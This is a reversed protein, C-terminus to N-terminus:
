LIDKMILVSTSAWVRFPQRVKYISVKLCEQGKTMRNTAISLCLVHFNCYLKIRKKKHCHCSKGNIFIVLFNSWSTYSMFEFKNKKIINFLTGKEVAHKRGKTKSISTRWFFNKKGGGGGGGGVCYKGTMCYGGNIKNNNKKKNNKKAMEVMETLM